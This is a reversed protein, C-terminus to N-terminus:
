NLNIIINDINYTDRLSLSITYKVKETIDQDNINALLLNNFSLTISDELIQYDELEYSANLYSILNTEYIPTNKLEKVIIEVPELKENTIKTIPIYYLQDNYKSFYYVTTKSTGKYDSLDYTKNIGFSKDLIIPLKKQSIPLKELLENEVFIMIKSIGDIECLSYILSEIMKEEKELTINLIEKSFNLKLLNDQISYDLLKTGKPITGYFGNPLYLADISNITLSSIIYEIQKDKSEPIYTRSVYNNTDMVYIPITIDDVYVIEEPIALQNKTPFLCILLVITFAISSLIIRKIANRRLM